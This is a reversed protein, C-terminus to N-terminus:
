IRAHENTPREAVDEHPSLGTGHMVGQMAAGEWDVQVVGMVVVSLEMGYLLLGGDRGVGRGGGALGDEM